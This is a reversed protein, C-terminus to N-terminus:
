PVDVGNLTILPGTDSSSQFAGRGAFSATYGLGLIAQIEQTVGGCSAVGNANTQASCAPGAKTTFTITQGSLPAGSSTTLQAELNPFFVKLGLPTIRIQAVAPFAVLHTATQTQTPTRTPITTPTAIPTATAAPTTTPTPTTQTQFEYAGIDCGAGFPRPVGRQDFGTCDPDTTPIVDVAPSDSQLAITQTPGGNDKLGAPDLKPDLSNASGTATFQCTNDDSINYGNDTIGPPCNGGAGVGAFITGKVFTTNSGGIGFGSNASFTSNIVTLLSGNNSIGGGSNGSFTSNTVTLSNANDVLIAGGGGAKNDSFTSNAVTATGDDMAIGSGASGASNGSFTSNTVTLPGDNFIGGGRNTASNGSFTSNTVTLTGANVIGGGTLVGAGDAITLNELNLTAGSSVQMVQFQNDGDVTIGPSATPASITLVNTIAPLTAGLTITGAVSFQITDTGSGAVCNNAAAKTNAATIADRLSCTGTAGSPDSLTTVTITDARCVSSALAVGFVVVGFSRWYTNPMATDEQRAM